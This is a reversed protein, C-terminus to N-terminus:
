FISLDRCISISSRQPLYKYTISLLRTLLKGAGYQDVKRDVVLRAMLICLCALPSIEGEIGCIAEEVGDGVDLIGQSLVACM